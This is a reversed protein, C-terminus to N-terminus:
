YGWVITANVEKCSDKDFVWRWIEGQEGQMEIYSGTEVYPAIANLMIVEDGGYKEGSFRIGEINGDKDFEADWRWMKLADKIDPSDVFAPDVWSFHDGCIMDGKYNALAKIAKLAKAFNKKNMRFYSDRQNIYYGM